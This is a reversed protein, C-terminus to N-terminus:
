IYSPAFSKFTFDAEKEENSIVPKMEGFHSLLITGNNKEIASKSSKFISKISESFDM